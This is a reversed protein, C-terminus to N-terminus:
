LKRLEQRQEDSLGPAYRAVRGRGEPDSERTELATEYDIVELM